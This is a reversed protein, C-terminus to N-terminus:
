FSGGEWRGDRGAVEPSRGEALQVIVETDGSLSLQGQAWITLGDASRVKVPHKGQALELVLPTDPRVLHRQGELQLLVTEVARFEVSTPTDGVETNKAETTIGSKGVIVWAEGAEPIDVQVDNPKGDVWVQFTTSGADATVRLQGPWTLSAVPFGDVRIETPVKADVVLTGASALSLLLALTM